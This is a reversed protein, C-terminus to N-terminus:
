HSQQWAIAAGIETQASRMSTIANGKHGGYDRDDNQLQTILRGLWTQLNALNQNSSGQGRNGSPENGGGTSGSTQFCAADDHYTNVAYQEAAVIEGRATTLDNVANTRHGGYDRQDHQLNQIVGELRRHVHWLNQDSSCQPKALAPVGGGLVVLFAVVAGARLVNM